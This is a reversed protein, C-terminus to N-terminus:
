NGTRSSTTSPEKVLDSRLLDGPRDSRGLQQHAVILSSAVGFSLGLLTAAISSVVVKYGVGPM